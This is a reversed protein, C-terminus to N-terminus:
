RILKGYRRSGIAAKDVGEPWFSISFSIDDRAADYDINVATYWRSSKRILVLQNNSTKGRELDFRHAIAMTYKNNLRYTSGATLFNGDIPTTLNNTENVKVDGNHVFQSTVYFSTNATKQVALTAQAQSVHEDHINYNVNGIVATTDSILWRLDMTAHDSLTQNIMERRNLGYAVFDPNIIDGKGFQPEPTSFYFQNPIMLEDVDKNVLTVSTDVRLFDVSHKNGPKGRMTQWRQRLSFNFIDQEQVGDQNSEVIFASTEPIVIHRLRDLNWVDSQVSNDVKSFQTSARVGFAGQIASNDVPTNIGSDDFVTTGIVTPVINLNGAHIPLALEHRSIGLTFHDQHVPSELEQMRSITTNQYYTFKEFLDQGIIHFGGGPLETQTSQYNNLRWKSIFDVAWNDKQKKLYILTEQEKETEFIKEEWSELFTDDSIYSLETTIQWDNELYHRHKWSIWGREKHDPEVRRRANIRGLRDEGEDHIYYSKFEGFFEGYRYDSELGAAPGRKTYEDLRFVNKLNKPAKPLNLLKELPWETEVIFGHEKSRGMSIAGLPTDPKLSDGKINPLWFLPLKGANFTFNEFDYNVKLENSNPDDAKPVNQTTITARKVGAWVQPQFFEDASIQMNEISFNNRSTQKIKEARIYIPINTKPDIGSIKLVGDIILARENIFDYYLQETTIKNEGVQFIVDGELYVSSIGSGVANPDNRNMVKEMSYFVVANDAKLELLTQNQPLKINDLQQYIYIGGSYVLIDSGDPQRRSSMSAQPQAVMNIPGSSTVNSKKSSQNQALVSPPNVLLSSALYILLACRFSVMSFSKFMMGRAFEM